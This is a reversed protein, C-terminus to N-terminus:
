SEKILIYGTIRAMLLNKRPDSKELIIETVEYIVPLDHHHEIFKGIQLYEGTVNLNIYLRYTKTTNKTNSSDSVVPIIGTINVDYKKAYTNVIKSFLHLNEFTLTKEKLSDLKYKEITYDQDLQSLKVHAVSAEQTEVAILETERVVKNSRTEQPKYLGFYWGALSVSYFSVIGIFVHKSWM